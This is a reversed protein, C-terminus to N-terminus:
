APGEERVGSHLDRLENADPQVEHSGADGDVQEEKPPFSALVVRYLDFFHTLGTGVSEEMRRIRVNIYALAFVLPIAIALGSATTILALMIDGALKTSDTETANALKGFAGMMGVVTGLLGVMPASKIVTNVWSLRFEIDSLVDTQFRELVMQRIKAYGATREAIALRILQPLARVDEGAVSAAATYNGKKLPKSLQAIFADQEEESRFRKQGVRMGVMVVNYAGWLAILALATYMIYGVINTLGGIASEAAFLTISHAVSTM